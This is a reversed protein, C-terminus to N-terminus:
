SVPPLRLSAIRGRLLVAACALFACAAAAVAAGIAADRWAFGGAAARAPARQGLGYRENLARSRAELANLWAPTTRATLTRPVAYGGLHYHRNLADSRIMLAREWAPQAAVATAASSLAIACLLATLVLRAHMDM